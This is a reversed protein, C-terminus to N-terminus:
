EQKGGKSGTVFVTLAVAIVVILLIVAYIWWDDISTYINVLLLVGITTLLAGWVLRFSRQSPIFDSEGSAFPISILFYIGVVVLTTYLVVIASENTMQWLVIGAVIGALVAVAALVQGNKGSLSLSNNTSM